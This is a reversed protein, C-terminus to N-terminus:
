PLGVMPLNAESHKVSRCRKGSLPPLGKKSRWNIGDFNDVFKKSAPPTRSAARRIASQNADGRNIKMMPKNHKPDTM